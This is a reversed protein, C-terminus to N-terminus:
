GRSTLVPIPSSRVVREATSGVLVRELGSRGHTGLIIMDAGVRQAEGIIIEYAVGGSVVRSEVDKLGNEDDSQFNIAVFESLKKEAEKVIEGNLQGPDVGSALLPDQWYITSDVLSAVHIVYLKAGSLQALTTAISSAKASGKSFDTAFLLTNLSSM